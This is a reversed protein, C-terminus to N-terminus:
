IMLYKKKKRKLLKQKKLLKEQLAQKVANEQDEKQKRKIAVMELRKLRAKEFQEKQKDSVVRKAKPKIEKQPKIEISEDESYDELNDINSM